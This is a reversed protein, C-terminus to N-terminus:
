RHKIESQITKLDRPWPTSKQQSEPLQQAAQRAKQNSVYQGTVIVFWDTGQRITRFLLLEKRNSQVAIFDKAAKETSVGVLQLTYQNADWSLITAEQESVGPISHSKTPASGEFKNKAPVESIVATPKSASVKSIAHASKSADLNGTNAQLLPVVIQKVIASTSSLSSSATNISGQVSVGLDRESAVSGSTGTSFISSSNVVTSSAVSNSSDLAPVSTMAVKTIDRNVSPKKDGGGFYLYGLSLLSLLVSVGIIHPVPLVRKGQNVTPVTVTELLKEQAYEHL